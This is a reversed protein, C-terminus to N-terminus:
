VIAETYKIVSLKQLQRKLLKWTSLLLNMWQRLFGCLVRRAVFPFQDGPKLRLAFCVQLIVFLTSKGEHSPVVRPATFPCYVNNQRICIQCIVFPNWLRLKLSLVNNQAKSLSVFTATFFFFFMYLTYNPTVWWVHFGDFSKHTHGLWFKVM